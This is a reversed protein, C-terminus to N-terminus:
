IFAANININIEASQRFILFFVIRNIVSFSLLSSLLIHFFHSFYKSYDFDLM